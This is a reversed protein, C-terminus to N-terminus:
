GPANQPANVWNVPTAQTLRAVEEPALTDLSDAWEDIRSCAVSM